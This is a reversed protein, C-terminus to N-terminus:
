WILKNADQSCVLAPKPHNAMANQLFSRKLLELVATKSALPRPEYPDASCAPQKLMPTEPPPMALQQQTSPVIAQSATMSFAQAFADKNKMFMYHQKAEARVLLTKKSATTRGQQKAKETAPPAAGILELVTKSRNKGSEHANIADRLAHGVKERALQDGIEIWRGDEDRKVFGGGNSGGRVTDVIQIVLLSKDLKTAAKLYKGINMEITLRFRRNGVHNYNEKGRACIVDYDGPAFSAALPM